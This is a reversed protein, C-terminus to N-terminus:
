RAEFGRLWHIGAKAPIVIRSSIVTLDTGNTDPVIERMPVSLSSGSPVQAEESPQGVAEGM